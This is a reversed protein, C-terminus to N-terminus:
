KYVPRENEVVLPAGQSGAGSPVGCPAPSTPMGFGGARRAPNRGLEASGGEPAQYECLPVLMTRGFPRHEPEAAGFQARNDVDAMVHMITLHGRRYNAPRPAVTTWM